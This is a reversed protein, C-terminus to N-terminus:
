VRFGLGSFDHQSLQGADIGGCNDQDAFIEQCDQVM